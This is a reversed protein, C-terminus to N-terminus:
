KDCKRVIVSKRSLALFPKLYKTSYRLIFITNDSVFKLQNLRSKGQFERQLKVDM